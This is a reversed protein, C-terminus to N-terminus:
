LNNQYIYRVLDTPNKIGLKLNINKRHTEVTFVSIFLKKAIQQSTLNDKILYIIEIERKTLLFKRSFEDSTNLYNKDLRSDYYTGGNCVKHIGTLLEIKSANKLIYGPVKKNLCQQVFHKDTYMSIMIIKVRPNQKNIMDILDIGNIQPLNIDLLILDTPHSQIFGLVKSGCHIQGCVEMDYETELISKLGDNFLVHDDAILIKTPM